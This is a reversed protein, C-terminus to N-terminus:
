ADLLGRIYGVSEALGPVPDDGDKEYELGMVGTYKIKKLTNLVGPLDIIGRGFELPYGKETAENVDKLHLDFLRDKYRKLNESIDLGIRITHGIDICLGMRPDMDKIKDYISQPSPYVKDGPGHNHIALKINTAKVKQEVMSLLEHNPVGIIVKMEAAQAYRFANNVEEESKMYIVGAGYLDIGASRVKAAAAKIEENTSELPLHMSKLALHKINLRQCMAITEDLNLKRLTYSALGVTLKTPTKPAPLATAGQLTTTGAAVAGTGVLKLFTKRSYKM